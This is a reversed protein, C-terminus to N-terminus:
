ENEQKGLLWSDAEAGIPLSKVGSPVILLANAKVLSYLNGSGQHGTLYAVIKGGESKLVARLYSERGDSEIAEGVVVKVAHHGLNVLGSLRAIVPRVFVEFGVYASVPNGPLGILPTGKFRGFAVPKGPRMNVRWFDLQGESEVLARIFDFAGVSVGASTLILDVSLSAAQDLLSRVAELSDAAVGLRFPKGGARLVLAELMFSNSDHIKGPALPTGPPVIEDGSSLIAVRPLRFVKAKAFGLTALLGIDEPQLIRGGSLVQQGSKIDQGKPRVYEGVQSATYINVTSSAHSTSNQGARDTQEVPVICDAGEPLMAGTMIRAAEGPHLASRPAAGAPIDMSVALHVPHERSAGQIDMSRVAFGDMGSNSFAPLDLGSIIDEFLVRGSAAEISVTEADLQSFNQIIRQRAEDVSLM